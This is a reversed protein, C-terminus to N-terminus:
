VFRFFFEERKWSLFHWCVILSLSYDNFRRLQLIYLILFFWKEHVTLVLYEIVGTEYLYACLIYNFAIVLIFIRYGFEPLPDYEM